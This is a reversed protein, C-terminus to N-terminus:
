NEVEQYFYQASVGLVIALLYKLEEFFLHPGTFLLLIFLIVFRLGFSSHGDILNQSSQYNFFILGAFIGIVICLGILGQESLIQLYFNNANDKWGHLDIQLETAAKEQLNYFNGTGVGLVPSQRWVQIAIRSYINRSYFMEKASELNLTSSVRSIAPINLTSIKTRAFETNLSLLLLISLISFYFLNILKRRDCILSLIVWILIGLFFTRSGSWLFCISILALILNLILKENKLHNSKIHEYLYPLILAGMLGFANPDTFTGSLRKSLTWFASTNYVPFPYINLIQLVTIIAALTLGGFVGVFFFKKREKEFSSASVIVLLLLSNLYTVFQGVPEAWKRTQSIYFYIFDKFSLHEYQVRLIEVDINIVLARVIGQLALLSLLLYCLVIRNQLVERLTPFNRQLLIARGLCWFCISLSLCSQGFFPFFCIAFGLFAYSWNLCFISVLLAAAAFWPAVVATIETPNLNFTSHYFFACLQSIIIAVIFM